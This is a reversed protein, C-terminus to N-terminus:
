FQSGMARHECAELEEHETETLKSGDSRLVAAHYWNALRTGDALRRALHACCQYAAGVSRHQHGCSREIIPSGDGHRSNQSIVITSYRTETETKLVASVVEPPYLAVYAGVGGGKNPEQELYVTVTKGLSPGLAMTERDRVHLSYAYGRKHPGSIDQSWYQPTPGRRMYRPHGYGAAIADKMTAFRITANM